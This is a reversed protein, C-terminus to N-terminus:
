LLAKYADNHQDVMRKIRYYDCLEKYRLLGLAEQPRPLAQKNVHELIENWADANLAPIITAYSGAVERHVELDSAIVPTNCLLAEILPLSFGEAMSPVLVAEAQRYMWALEHDSAEIQFMQAGIGAAQILQQERKSWRGGGVCVLLPQDQAPQLRKIARFLTMANKYAHRKGVFLWFRRGVLEPLAQLSVSDIQTALHIVRIPTRLDPQFFNLDDASAQSISIVLDSCSLWQRKNAHPSRFAPLLFHEPHREPILDFLSSVLRQDAALRYPSGGYFTAHVIQASRRQTLEIDIETCLGSALDHFYRSIGGRTQRRFIQRDFAVRLSQHTNLPPTRHLLSSSSSM